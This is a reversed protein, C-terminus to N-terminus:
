RTHIDASPSSLRANALAFPLMGDDGHTLSLFKKPSAVFEVSKPDWPHPRVATELEVTEAIHRYLEVDGKAVAHHSLPMVVKEFEREAAYHAIRKMLERDYGNGRHGRDPTFNLIRLQSKDELANGSALAVTEGKADRLLFFTYNENSFRDRLRGNKYAALAAEDWEGGNYGYAKATLDLAPHELDELMQVLMALEKKGIKELFGPTNKDIVEFTVPLRDSVAIQPQLVIAPEQTREPSEHQLFWRRTDRTSQIGAVAGFSGAAGALWAAGHVAGSLLMKGLSDSAQGLLPVHPLVNAHVGLAFLGGLVLGIAAGIAASKMFGAFANRLMRNYLSTEVAAIEPEPPQLRDM